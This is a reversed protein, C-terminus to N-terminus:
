KLFIILGAIVVAGIIIAIWWNGKIGTAPKQIAGLVAKILPVDADTDDKRERVLDYDENSVPERDIERHIYWFNKGYRWLYKPNIKHVKNNVVIINGSVIKCVKFRIDRKQTLYQTVVSDPLKNAKNISKKAKFPLKFPKSKKENLSNELLAQREELESIRTM